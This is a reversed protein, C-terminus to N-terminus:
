NNLNLINLELFFVRIEVPKDIDREACPEPASGTLLGPREAIPVHNEWSRYLGVMPKSTPHVDVSLFV